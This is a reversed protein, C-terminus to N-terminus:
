HSNKMELFIGGHKENLFFFIALYEIESRDFLLFFVSM